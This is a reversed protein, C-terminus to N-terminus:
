ANPKDVDTPNTQRGGKLALPRWKEPLIEISEDDKPGHQIKKTLTYIFVLFLLTYIFFFMILSSLVQGAKVAKSLGESTKLIEYVVWPQRGMEATFWGAQNAIQPMFVSLVLLWLFWQVWKIDTKWLYGTKWLACGMLSIGILGMGMAIMIHYTQFVVPVQPWYKPRLTQLDEKTAEPHRELLFEDSPLQDLGKVETESAKLPHLFDGSVLISLLGKIKYASENIGIIEGEANREWGVWGVIGLPAETTTEYLGEIAALKTPQNDAVGRATSDASALQLLSAITGIALGFKLSTKAFQVHRKKILYYASISVVLFAGALWCGIVTHCIRDVTSPNMVMEWFSDVVARISTLDDEKLIYGEPLAIEKIRYPIDGLDTDYAHQVGDYTEKVKKALHFGAPTQMWSNAVLIWIASFHAGLCVMCTAFFHTRPGVKDWGFLLIALFGSELFFAYLGEIALPSGFVDGVFRSYTAWNTGFEFEMVIGTAVGIAFTLGFVRTWFRAMNHYVPNRTKLWFAQMFVLQLGLGISLPPYIYHFAITFAFQIRSLIEVDM